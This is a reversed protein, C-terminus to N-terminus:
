KMSKFDRKLMQTIEHLNLLGTAQLLVGTIISYITGLVLINLFPSHFRLGPLLWLIAAPSASILLLLGMQRWPLVDRVPVGLINRFAIVFFPLVFFWAALVAGLPAGVYGLWQIFFYCLVFNILLGLANQIMLLKQRGAAICIGSFRVTRLPLYLLWLRFPLASATYKDGFLFNMVDEATLFLFCMMPILILGCKVMARGMLRVMERPKGETYMRRYEPLLVSTVSDTIIAILPIEIAGNAYVAFDAKSVSAAVLVSDIKMSLMWMITGLGLPFGVMIQRWIQRPRPILSGQPVSRLMLAIAIPLVFAGTLVLAAIAAEPQKWIIGAAVVLLFRALRSIVNFIAIDRPRDRAMLVADLALPPLGLLPFPAFILLAPALAENNFIAAILRNGGLLLFLSFLAGMIALPVLTEIVVTRPREKETSL